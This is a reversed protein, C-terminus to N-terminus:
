WSQKLISTIKFTMKLIALHYISLLLNDISKKLLLPPQTFITRHASPLTAPVRRDIAQMHCTTARQHVMLSKIATSTSHARSLM